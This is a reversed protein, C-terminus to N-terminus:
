TAAAPPWTATEASLSSGHIILRELRRHAFPAERTETVVRGDALAPRHRKDRGVARNVPPARGVEVGGRQKVAQEIGHDATKELDFRVSRVTGFAGVTSVAVHQFGAKKGIVAAHQQGFRQVARQCATQRPTLQRPAYFANFAFHCQAQRQAKAGNGFRARRPLVAGFLAVDVMDAIQHRHQAGALVPLDFLTVILLDASRQPRSRVTSRQHRQQDGLAFRQRHRRQLRDIGPNFGAMGGPAVPGAAQAILPAKSLM